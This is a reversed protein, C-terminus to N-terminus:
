IGGKIYYLLEKLLVYVFFFPIVTKIVVAIRQRLVPTDYQNGGIFNRDLLFIFNIWILFLYLFIAGTLTLLESM